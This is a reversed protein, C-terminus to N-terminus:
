QDERVFRNGKDSYKISGSPDGKVTGDNRFIAIGNNKLKQVFETDDLKKKTVRYAEPRNLLRLITQQEEHDVSAAHRKAQAPTYSGSTSASSSSSGSAGINGSGQVGGVSGSSAMSGSENQSRSGVEASAVSRSAKRNNAVNGTPLDNSGPMLSASNVESASTSAVAAAASASTPPIYISSQSSSAPSRVSSPGTAAHAMPLAMSTAMAMLSQASKLAPAGQQMAVQAYTSGYDPSAAAAPSGSDFVTQALAAPAPAFSSAPVTEPVATLLTSNTIKSTSTDAHQQQAVTTSRADSLSTSVPNDLKAVASTIDSKEVAGTRTVKSAGDNCISVLNKTTDDNIVNVIFPGHFLEHLVYRKFDSESRIESPKASKKRYYVTKGMQDTTAEPVGTESWKCTVSNSLKEPANFFLSANLKFKSEIIELQTQLDNMDAIEYASALTKKTEPKELCKAAKSMGDEIYLNSLYSRKLSRYEEPPLVTKCIPDIIINELNQSCISTNFDSAIDKVESLASERLQCANQTTSLLSFTMAKLSSKVAKALALRGKILKYTISSVSDAHVETIRVEKLTGDKFYQEVSLTGRKIMWYAIKKRSTDLVRIDSYDRYHIFSGHGRRYAEFALGDQPNALAQLTSLLALLFFIVKMLFCM